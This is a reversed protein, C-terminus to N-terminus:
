LPRDDAIEHCVRTLEDTLIAHIEVPDLATLRPALRDPLALLMDRARRNLTFVAARIEALPAVEGRKRALELEALEAQAGERRARMSAFTAGAEGGELGGIPGAEPRRPQRKGRNQGGHGGPHSRETWERDARAPDVKGKVLTIRGAKAAQRVAERTVGRRKAYEAPSLM